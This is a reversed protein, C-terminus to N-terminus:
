RGGWHRTARALEGRRALSLDGFTAWSDLSPCMGRRFLRRVREIGVKPVCLAIESILAGELWWPPDLVLEYFALDGSKLRQKLKKRESRIMNATGLAVQRQDQVDAVAMVVGEFM